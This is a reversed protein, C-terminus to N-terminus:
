SQPQQAQLVRQLQAQKPKPNVRFNCNLSTHPINKFCPEYGACMIALILEGNSVYKDNDETWNSEELSHKLGYSSYKHKSQPAVPIWNKLIYEKMVELRKFNWHTERDREYFGGINLSPFRELIKNAQNIFEESMKSIFDM